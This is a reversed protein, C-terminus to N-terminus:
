PHLKAGPVHHGTRKPTAQKKSEFQQPEGFILTWVKSGGRTFAPSSSFAKQYGIPRNYTDRLTRDKMLSEENKGVDAEFRNGFHARGRTPDVGLNDEQYASRAADLAEQYQTSKKLSDSVQWPATGARNQRAKGYTRDANIVAHAQANKAKKLDEPTSRGPLPTVDRNENFVIGAIQDLTL